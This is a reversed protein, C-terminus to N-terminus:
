SIWAMSHKILKLQGDLYRYLFFNGSGWIADCTFSQYILIYGKKEDIAPLSFSIFCGMEPNEKRFNPWGGFGNKKFYKSYRDEYNVIYGKQIDSTLTLPVSEQNIEFIKDILSKTNYGSVKLDKKLRKKSEQIEKKNKQFSIENFETKPSVIQIKKSESNTLLLSYIDNVSPFEEKQNAYLLSSLFLTLFIFFFKKM